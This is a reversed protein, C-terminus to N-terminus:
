KFRLTKILIEVPLDQDMNHYKTYTVKLYSNPRTVYIAQEYPSNGLDYNKMREVLLAPTGNLDFHSTFIFTDTSNDPIFWNDPAEEINKFDDSDEFKANPNFTITVLPLYPEGTAGVEKVGITLTNPDLVDNEVKWQSPFKFSYKDIANSYSKWHRSIDDLPIVSFASQETQALFIPRDMHNPYVWVGKRTTEKESPYVWKGNNLMRDSLDDYMYCQLGKTAVMSYLNLVSDGCPKGVEIENSLDPLINKQATNSSANKQSDKINTYMLVGIVGAITALAIIVIFSHIYKKM